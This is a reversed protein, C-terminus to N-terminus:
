RGGGFHKLDPAPQGKRTPMLLGDADLYYPEKGIRIQHDDESCIIERWVPDAMRYYTRNVTWPRTLATDFVTTQNLLIGPKERDLSIREHVVVKGDKHFPIGSSDYAHPGKMARTEVVLTDYEGPKQTAEWKGISYGTFAPEIDDPWKRGDTFIRRVELVPGDQIVYTTKPTIVAEFGLGYSVMMRPMGPPLCESTPNNGQGGDAVNALSEEWIKQYEANLPPNQGRGQPRAPDFIANTRRLWAGSWDPYRAEQALSAGVFGAWFVLGLFGARSAVNRNLM